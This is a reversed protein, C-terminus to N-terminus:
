STINYWFLNNGDMKGFMKNYANKGLDLRSVYTETLVYSFVSPMSDTLLNEIRNGQDKKLTLIIMVCEPKSDFM